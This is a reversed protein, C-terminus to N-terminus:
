KAKRNDLINEAAKWHDDHVWAQAFMETEVAGLAESTLGQRVGSAIAKFSRVVQPENKQFDAVFSALASDLTEGEGAVADIIGLSQAEEASFIKGQCLTRMGKAPGLLRMLDIGGGWATSINLKRQIFGIRAHSAAVRYDCAMSLEAGGGLASGNLAAVVPVPFRRIQDFALRGLRAMDCAQEDTRVSALDRLDGGAAFCDEGAGRLVAVRLSEDSSHASFIEGIEGLVDRSLANRKEPRNITVLLTGNDVEVLIESLIGM